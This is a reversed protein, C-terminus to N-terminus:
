WVIKERMNVKEISIWVGGWSWKFYLWVWVWSFVVEGGGWM